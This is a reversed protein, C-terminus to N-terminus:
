IPLPRSIRQLIWHALRACRGCRFLFRREMIDKRADRAWADITPYAYEIYASTTVDDFVVLIQGRQYVPDDLVVGILLDDDSRRAFPVFNVDPLQRQMWTRQRAGGEEDLLFYHWLAESDSALIWQLDRSLMFGQRRFMQGIWTYSM